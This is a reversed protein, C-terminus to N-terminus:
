KSILEEFKERYKLINKKSDYVKEVLARANRSVRKSKEPNKRLFDIKGAWAEPTNKVTYGTVGDTVYRNVPTVDSVLCPVGVAMAELMAKPLGEDLTPLVFLDAQALKGAIFKQSRYGHFNVWKRLGLRRCLAKCEGLNKGVGFFDVVFDRDGLQSLAEVLLDPKKQFYAFRLVSVIRFPKKFRPKWRYAFLDLNIGIDLILEKKSRFRLGQKRATDLVLKRSQPSLYNVADVRNFVKETQERTIFKSNIAHAWYIGAVRKVIKVDLGHREKACLVNYTDKVEYSHVVDVDNERIVKAIFAEVQEAVFETYSKFSSFEDKNKILPNFNFIEIGNRRKHTFAKSKPRISDKGFPPELTALCVRHGMEAMRAAILELSTEAGGVCKNSYRSHSSYILLNM